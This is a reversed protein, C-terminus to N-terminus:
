NEILLRLLDYSDALQRLQAFSVASDARPTTQLNYGTMYDYQRGVANQAPNQALPNLPQVPSFWTSPTINSVQYAVDKSSILWSALTAKALTTLSPKRAGSEAPQSSTDSTQSM